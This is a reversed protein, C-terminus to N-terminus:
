GRQIRNDAKRLKHKGALQSIDALLLFFVNPSYKFTAIQEKINYVPYQIYGTDIIAPHIETIHFEIQAISNLVGTCHHLRSCVPFGYFQYNINIWLDIFYI